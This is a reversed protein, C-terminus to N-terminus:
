GILMLETQPEALFQAGEPSHGAAPSASRGLMLFLALPVGIAAVFWLPQTAIRAGDGVVGAEGTIVVAIAVGLTWVGVVVAGLGALTRLRPAAAEPSTTANAWGAAAFFVPMPSLSAVWLWGPRLELLNTGRVGGDARDIVALGLHGLVVLGLALVRAVDVAPRREASTRVAEM